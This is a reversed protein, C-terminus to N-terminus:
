VRPTIGSRFSAKSGSTLADGPRWNSEVHRLVTKVEEHGPPSILNRLATAAPHAFVLAITVVAFLRERCASLDVLAWLGRRGVADRGTPFFFVFRGIFPYLGLMAACVTAAIPTVILLAAELSRCRRRLFGLAAVAVVLGTTSYAVGVPEAFANWLDSLPSLIGDAGAQGLAAKM